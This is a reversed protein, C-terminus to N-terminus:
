IAKSITNTLNKDWTVVGRLAEETLTQLLQKTHDVDNDNTVQIVKDLVSLEESTATKQDLESATKELDENM